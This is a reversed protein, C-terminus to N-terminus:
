AEGEAAREVNQSSSGAGAELEALRQATREGRERARRSREHAARATNAESSATYTSTRRQYASLHRRVVTPHLGTGLEPAPWLRASPCGGPACGRVESTRRVPDVM